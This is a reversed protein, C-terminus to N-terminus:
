ESAPAVEPYEVHLYGDAELLHLSWDLDLFIRICLDARLSPM